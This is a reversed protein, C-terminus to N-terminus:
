WILSRYLYEWECEDDTRDAYVWAVEIKRPDDALSKEIAFFLSDGYGILEGTEQRFMVAGSSEQPRVNFELVNIDRGSLNQIGFWNKKGPVPEVRGWPPPAILKQHAMSEEAIKNAQSALDNAGESLDNAKKSKGNARASIVVAIIALAITPIGVGLAVWADPTM